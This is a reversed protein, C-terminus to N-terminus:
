GLASVPCSFFTHGVVCLFVLFENTYMYICELGTHTSCVHVHVHANHRYMYMYMYICELGTHTSCVHVIYMFM